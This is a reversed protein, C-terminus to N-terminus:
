AKEVLGCEGWGMGKGGCWMGEGMGYGEWWVVKRGRGGDYVREVVGCRGGDLVRGQVVGSEKRERMKHGEWWVM